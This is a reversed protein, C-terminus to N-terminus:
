IELEIKANGPAYGKLNTLIGKLAGSILSSVFPNLPIKNGNIEINFETQLSVCDKIDSAGNIIARALDFCQGHNCAGCNLGPLIFGKEQIIAILSTMDQTCYFDTNSHDCWAAIALESSLEQYSELSDPIVIRPLFDLEKGGEIILFDANLLPLLDLVSEKGPWSVFSGQPSIGAVQDTIQSLRQTDSDKIDFGHSSFKLYTVSNGNQKLQSCLGLALNTKGSKKFGIISVAKM